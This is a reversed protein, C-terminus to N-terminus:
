GRRLRRLARGLLERDSRELAPTYIVAAYTALILPAGYAMRLAAPGPLMPTAVTAAVLVVGGATLTRLLGLGFPHVRHLQHVKVLLLLQILVLAIAGATAAGGIGFRRALVLCLGVNAAAAILNNLLV